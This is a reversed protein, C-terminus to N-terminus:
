NFRRPNQLKWIAAPQHPPLLSTCSLPPIAMRSKNFKSRVRIKRMLSKKKHRKSWSSYIYIQKREKLLESSMRRSNRVKPENIFTYIANSEIVTNEAMYSAGKKKEQFIGGSIGTRCTTSLTTRQDEVVDPNTEVYVGYKRKANAHWLTLWRLSKILGGKLVRIYLHKLLRHVYSIHILYHM